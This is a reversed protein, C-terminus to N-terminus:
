RTTAKMAQGNLSIIERIICLRYFQYIIYAALITCYIYIYVYIDTHTHTDILIPSAIYMMNWSNRWTCTYINICFKRFNRFTRAETQRRKWNTPTETQWIKPRDVNRNTSTKVLKWSYWGINLPNIYFPDWTRYYYSIQNLQCSLYRTHRLTLDGTSYFQLM